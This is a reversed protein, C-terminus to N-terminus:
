SQGNVEWLRMTQGDRSRKKSTEKGSQETLRIMALSSQAFAEVLERMRGTQVFHNALAENNPAAIATALDMCRTINDRGVMHAASHLVSNYALIVEPLYARSIRVLELEEEDSRGCTLFDDLLPQVAEVVRELLERIKNKPPMPAGSSKLKILEEEEIRWEDLMRIAHILQQLQYYVKSDLKLTERYMRMTQQHDEPSISRGPGPMHVTIFADDDDDMIDIARKINEMDRTKLKSVQSYNLRDILRVASALRGKSLFLKAALTLADFTQEWHEDLHMYWECARILQEDELSVQEPLFALSIRYGPWQNHKVTELFTYKEINSSGKEASHYTYEFQADLVFLPIMGYSEMLKVQIKQEQYNRIDTAASALTKIAVKPRLLSAYLPVLDIKGAMRLFEIYGVIVSEYLYLSKSSHWPLGMGRHIILVHTAVRLANYDRAFVVYPDEVLGDYPPLLFSAGNENAIRCLAGGLKVAIRPFAKSVLAAQIIKMPENAEVQLAEHVYLSEVIFDKEDSATDQPFSMSPPARLRTTQPASTSPFNEQQWRRFSTILSNNLRAYLYDDFNKCVPDVSAIDGALLGYVAAEYENQSGLAAAYCTRRWMEGCNRGRVSNRRDHHDYSENPFSKGLAVARWQENRESCWEFITQWSAGRRVMEWLSMWMAKEYEEDARELARIQRSPADPDLQSVLPEGTDNRKLRSVGDRDMPHMRKEQKLKSKTDYWGKSWSGAGRGLREDVIVSVDENAENATEELWRLILDNERAAHDELLFCDWMQGPDAYKEIRGENRNLLEFKVRYAEAGDPASEHEIMTHFLRWIAVESKYQKLLERTDGSATIIDEEASQLIEGGRVRELHKNPAGRSEQALRKALVRVNAEAEAQLGLILDVNNNYASLQNTNDDSIDRLWTDVKEAFREVEKGVRDAMAQLPHLDEDRPRYQLRLTNMTDTEPAISQDLDPRLRRRPQQPERSRRSVPAM